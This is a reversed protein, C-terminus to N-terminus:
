GRSQLSHMGRHLRCLGKVRGMPWTVQSRDCIVRSRRGTVPWMRGQCRRGPRDARPHREGLGPTSSSIAQVYPSIMLM